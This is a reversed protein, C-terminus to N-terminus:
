VHEKVFPLRQAQGCSYDFGGSSIMKVQRRLVREFHPGFSLTQLLCSDALFFEKLM